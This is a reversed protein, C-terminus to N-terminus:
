VSQWGQSAFSFEGRTSRLVGHILVVFRSFHGRRSLLEGSVVHQQRFRDVFKKRVLANDGAYFHGFM